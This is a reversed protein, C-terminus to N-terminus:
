IEDLDSYKHNTPFQINFLSSVYETWYDGKKIEKSGIIM